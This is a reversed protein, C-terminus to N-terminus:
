GGIHIFQIHDQKFKKIEAIAQKRIANLEIAISDGGIEKIWGYGCWQENRPDFYVDICNEGWHIEFAKGGQKLYEALTRMIVARSPKRKEYNITIIDFTTSM